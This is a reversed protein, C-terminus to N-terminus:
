RRAIARSVSAKAPQWDGALAVSSGGVAVTVATGTAEGVLMGTLGVAVGVGGGVAEGTGTMGGVAVSMGGPSNVRERSMSVLALGLM